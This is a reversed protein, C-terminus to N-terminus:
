VVEVIEASISLPAGDRVLDITKTAGAPGALLHVAGAFDDASVPEGDISHVEDGLEVRDGLAPWGVGIVRIRGDSSHLTLPVQTLQEAEIESAEVWAKQESHRLDLRLRRLLNGAIAGEVEIPMGRSMSKEFNGEPRSVAVVSPFHLDGWVLDPVRITEMSTEWPGAGMNALGFAGPARASVRGGLREILRNSFMCCSAGTDLLLNVEEGAITVTVGPWGPRPRSVARVESGRPEEGSDLVFEGRPYDFVVDHSAIASGPVFAEYAFGKHLFESEGERALCNETRLMSGGVRCEPLEVVAMERGDIDRRVPRLGLDRSLGSGVIFPGGGTDLLARARRGAGPFELDVYPRGHEVLLPTRGPM